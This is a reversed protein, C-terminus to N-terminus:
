TKPNNLAQSPNFLCVLTPISLAHPTSPPSTVNSVAVDPECPLSVAPLISKKQESQDFIFLIHGTPEPFLTCSWHEQLEQILDVQDTIEMQTANSNHTVFVRQKYIGGNSIPFEGARWFNSQTPPGQVHSSTLTKAPYPSHATYIDVSLLVAPDLWYVCGATWYYHVPVQHQLYLIIYLFPSPNQVQIILCSIHEKWDQSIKWVETSIDNNTRQLKRLSDVRLLNIDVSPNGYAAFVVNLWSLTDEVTTEVNKLFASTIHGKGTHTPTFLESPLVSDQFVWAKWDTVPFFELPDNILELVVPSNLSYSLSGNPLTKHLPNLLEGAVSYLNPIGVMSM